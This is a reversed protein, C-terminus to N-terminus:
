SITSFAAIIHTSFYVYIIILCQLFDMYFEGNYTHQLNSFKLFKKKSKKKEFTNNIQSIVVPTNKDLRLNM